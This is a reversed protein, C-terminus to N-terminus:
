EGHEKGRLNLLDRQYIFSVALLLAGLGLASVIRFGQTLVRADLLFV